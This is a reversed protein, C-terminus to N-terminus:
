DYYSFSCNECITGVIGNSQQKRLNEYVESYFAELIPTDVINKHVQGESDFCCIAYDGNSLICIQKRLDDCYMKKNQNKSIINNVDKGIWGGLKIVRIEAMGSYKEKFKEVEDGTGCDVISMRIYIPNGLERNRKVLYDINATTREFDLGMIKHYKESDVANLSITITDLGSTLLKEIKEENPMSFNTTFWVVSKPFTQKLLKIRDILKKDTFPEGNLHLIFKEVDIKEKIIREIILSFLEDDMVKKERILTPNSCFECQANCLSSTEIMIRYKVQKM